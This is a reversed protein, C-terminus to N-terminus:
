RAELFPVCFGAVTAVVMGIGLAVGTHLRKRGSEGRTTGWMYATVHVRRAEDVLEQTGPLSFDLAGSEAQAEIRTAEELTMLQHKSQKM